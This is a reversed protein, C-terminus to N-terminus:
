NKPHKEARAEPTKEPNKSNTSFQPLGNRRSTMSSEVSQCPKSVLVNKWATQSFGGFDSRNKSVFDISFGIGFVCSFEMSKRSFFM